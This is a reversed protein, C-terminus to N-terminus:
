AEILRAEMKNEKLWKKADNIREYTTGFFLDNNKTYLKGLLENPVILDKENVNILSIPTKKINLSAVGFEKNAVLENFMKIKSPLHRESLVSDCRKQSEKDPMLKLIAKIGENIQSLVRNIVDYNKSPRYSSDVKITKVTVNVNVKLSYDKYTKAVNDFDPKFEDYEDLYVKDESTISDFEKVVYTKGNVIIEKGVLKGITMNEFSEYDFCVGSYDFPYYVNDFLEFYMVKLSGFMKVPAGSLVVSKERVETTPKDIVAINKQCMLQASAFDYEVDDPLVAYKLEPAIVSLRIDSVKKLTGFLENETKSWIIHNITEFIENSAASRTIRFIHNIDLVAYIDKKNVIILGVGIKVQTSRYFGEKVGDEKLKLLTKPDVLGVMLKKSADYKKNFRLIAEKIFRCDTDVFIISTKYDNLINDFSMSSPTKDLKLFGSSILQDKNDFTHKLVKEMNM